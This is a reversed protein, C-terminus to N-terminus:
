SGTLTRYMWSNSNRQTRISHCNACRVECKEIEERLVKLTYAGQIMQSVNMRKRGRVHDFHLTLPNSEGCDVCPHIKLHALVYNRNEEKREKRRVYIKEKTEKTNERYHRKGAKKQCGKCVTQLGDRRARNKYFESKPLIKKCLSCAKM